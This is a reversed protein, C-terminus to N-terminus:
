DSSAGAAAPISARHGRSEEEIIKKIDLGRSKILERVPNYAEDKVEALGDIDAMAQLIRKGDETKSLDLLAKRINKRANEPLDKTFTVNDNPIAETRAIIRTVQKVDPLTERARDRADTKEGGHVAGAAAKGNYVDVVVQTHSGSYLPQLDKEPDIGANQLLQKPYLSGSTSIPDVFAFARGKLDELSGIGSDNRTIIVGTYDTRGDREILLAAEAGLSDSAYVYALPSLWVIQVRGKDLDNLVDAYSVPIRIEINQGTKEALADALERAALAIKIPDGSPVFAMQIPNDPSGLAGPKYNGGCGAAFTCVAALLGALVRNM